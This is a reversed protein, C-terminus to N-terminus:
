RAGEAARIKDMEDEHHDAFLLTFRGGSIRQLIAGANVGAGSQMAAELAPLSDFYLEHILRCDVDGFLRFDIRSTTERVVGPMREAARLFEPWHLDFLDDDPPVTILIVLKHM